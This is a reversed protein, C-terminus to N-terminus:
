CYKVIDSLKQCDEIFKSLRQLGRVIKSLRPCDEMTIKKEGDDINGMSLTSFDFCKKKCFNWLAVLLRPLTGVGVKESKRKLWVLFYVLIRGKKIFLYVM